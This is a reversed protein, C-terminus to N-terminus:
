AKNGIQTPITYLLPSNIYILDLSFSIYTQDINPAIKYQELAATHSKYCVNLLSPNEQQRSGKIHKKM